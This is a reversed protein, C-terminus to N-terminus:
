VEEAFRRRLRRFVWWGAAVWVIGLGALAVLQWGEPWRNDHWIGQYGTALWTLPNLNLWFILNKHGKLASLPYIIPTAFFLVTLGVSVLYELDRFYVTIASLMLAIGLALLSQLILLLPLALLPPGLPQRYIAAFVFLIALSLLLNVLSSLVTTLPLLELPFRVRRVLNGSLVISLASGNVAALFANWPLLGALLFIPYRPVKFRFLVTYVVAYVIMMLLPNLLSWFFGLATGKYKVKLDKRVLLVLLDRHRLLDRVEWRLSPRAARTVIMAPAAV